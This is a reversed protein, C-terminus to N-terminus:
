IIALMYELVHESAMYGYIFHKLTDNFLVNGEKWFM